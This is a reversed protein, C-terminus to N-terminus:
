VQERARTNGLGSFATDAKPRTTVTRYGALEYVPEFSTSRVNLVMKGVSPDVWSRLQLVEATVTNADVPTAEVAAAAVDTQTQISPADFSTPSPLPAFVMAIALVAIALLSKLKNNM